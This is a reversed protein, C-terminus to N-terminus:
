KSIEPLSLLSKCESFLGSMNTVNNTNWKSIDPLSSLSECSIFLYGMNTVNNINWKTLDLENNAIIGKIDKMKNIIRLKLKTGNGDNKYLLNLEDDDGKKEEKYCAILETEYKGDFIM